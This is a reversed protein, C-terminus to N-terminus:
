AEAYLDGVWGHMCLLMGIICSPSKQNSASMSCGSRVTEKLSRAELPLGQSAPLSSLIAAGGDPTYFHISAGSKVESCRGISIASMLQMQFVWTHQLAEHDCAPAFATFVFLGPKCLILWLLQISFRSVQLCCFDLVLVGSQHQFANCVLICSFATHALSSARPGLKSTLACFHRYDLTAIYKTKFAEAACIVSADTFGLPFNQYKRVCQEICALQAPDPALILPTTARLWECLRQELAPGGAKLFLYSTEGLCAGPIVVDPVPSFQGLAEVCARHESDKTNLFAVLFGTDVILTSIKPATPARRLDSRRSRQSAVRM